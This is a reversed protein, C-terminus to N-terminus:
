AHAYVLAKSMRVITGPRGSVRTQCHDFDLEDVLATMLQVGRGSEAEPDLLAGAPVPDGSVFGTGRDAVEVVCCDHEIGATVEYEHDGAHDLVNTCAESIALEIDDACGGDVGMLDLTHRFVKRALPVSRADSPLSLKLRLLM